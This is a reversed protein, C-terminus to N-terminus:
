VSSERRPRPQCTMSVVAVAATTTRGDVTAPVRQVVALGARGRLGVDDVSGDPHIVVVHWENPGLRISNEMRSGRFRQVLAGDALPETRYNPHLRRLLHM